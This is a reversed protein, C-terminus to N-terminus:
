QEHEVTFRTKRFVLRLKELHHELPHQETHKLYEHGALKSRMTQDYKDRGQSIKDAVIKQPQSQVATVASLLLIFATLLKKTYLM